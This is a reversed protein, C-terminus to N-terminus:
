RGKMVEDVIEKMEAPTLESVMFYTIYSDGHCIGDRREIFRDIAIGIQRAKGQAVLEAKDLQLEVLNVKDNM